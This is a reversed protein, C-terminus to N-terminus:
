GGKADEERAESRSLPVPVIHAVSSSTSTDVLHYSIERFEGSKQAVRKWAYKTGWYEFEYRISSGGRRRINLHAYNSFELSVIDSSPPPRDTHKMAPSIAYGEFDDESTSDYGSGLKKVTNRTATMSESKSRLATLVSSVSRQLGPRRLAPPLEVKRSSHCVERGSERCYRRLSFERQKLDHMRLHFLTLDVTQGDSTRAATDLRLNMNGDLTMDDHRINVRRTSPFYDAFERPSAAVASPIRFEPEDEPIEYPSLEEEGDEGSSVTSAYTTASSKFDKYEREWEDLQAWRKPDPNTKIDPSRQYSPRPSYLTDATSEFPDSPKDSFPYSHFSSQSSHSTVNTMAAPM